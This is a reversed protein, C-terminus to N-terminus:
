YYYYYYIIIKIIVQLERRHTIISKTLIVNSNIKNFKLIIILINIIILNLHLKKLSHFM